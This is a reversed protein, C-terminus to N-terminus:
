EGQKSFNGRSNLDESGRGGLLLKPYPEDREAGPIIERKRV